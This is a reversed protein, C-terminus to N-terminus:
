QALRSGVCCGYVVLSGDRNVGHVRGNPAIVVRYRVSRGVRYDVTCTWPNRFEGVGSSSCRASIGPQRGMGPRPDPASAVFRELVAATVPTLSQQQFVFEPDGDSREIVAVLSAIGGIVLIPLIVTL